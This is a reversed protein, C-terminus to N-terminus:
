ELIEVVLELLSSSSIITHEMQSTVALSCPRTAARQVKLTRVAFDDFGFGQGLGNLDQASVYQADFLTNLVWCARDIAHHQVTPGLPVRGACVRMCEHGDVCEYMCSWAFM